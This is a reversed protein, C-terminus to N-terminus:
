KFLAITNADIENELQITYVVGTDSSNQITLESFPVHYGRGMSDEYKIGIAKSRNPIYINFHNTYMQKTVSNDDNKELEFSVIEAVVNYKQSKFFSYIFRQSQLAHGLESLSMEGVDDIVYLQKWSAAEVKRELEYAYYSATDHWQNNGDILYLDESFGGLIESELAEAVFEHKNYVKKDANSVTIDSIIQNFLLTFLSVTICTVSFIKKLIGNKCKVMCAVTSICVCMGCCSVYGPLYAKRWDVEVQYRESIGILVAPLLLVILGCMISYTGNKIDNKMNMIVMLCVLAIIILIIYRIGNQNLYKTLSYAELLEKLTIWNGITTSGSLQKFFAEISQTSIMISTGAYEYSAHLRAYCNFVLWGLGVIIQPWIRKIAIVIRKNFFVSVVLFVFCMVYSVEYTGLAMGWLISSIIQYKYSQSEEFKIYLLVALITLLFCVQLLCHFGFMANFYSCDLNILVPFSWVILWKLRQSNTLKYIVKALLMSNVITILVIVFKYVRLGVYYFFLYVYFGFFFCRGTGVYWQEMIDKTLEFVSQGNNICSGKVTYNIVDDYMYGSKLVSYLAVCYYILILTYWLIDKKKVHPLM